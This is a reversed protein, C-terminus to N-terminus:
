AAHDAHNMDAAEGGGTEARERGVGTDGGTDGMDRQMAQSKDLAAKLAGHAAELQARLLAISHILNDRRQAASKAATSYAFNRPDHNRTRDEEARVERDLDAALREFDAIMSQTQAVQRRHAAIEFNTLRTQAVLSDM